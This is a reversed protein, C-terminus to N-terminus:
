AAVQSHKLRLQYKTMLELPVDTRAWQQIVRRPILMLLSEVLGHHAHGDLSDRDVEASACRQWDANAQNGLTRLTSAHNTTSAGQAHICGRNWTRIGASARYETILRTLKCVTTNAAMAPAAQWQQLFDDAVPIM